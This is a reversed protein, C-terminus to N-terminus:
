SLLLKRFEDFREHNNAFSWSLTVAVGTDYIIACDHKFKSINTGVFCM